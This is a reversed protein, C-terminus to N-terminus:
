KVISELDVIGVMLRGPGKPYFGLNVLCQRREVYKFDHTCDETLWQDYAFSLHQALLSLTDRAVISGDPHSLTYRVLGRYDPPYKDNGRQLTRVYTHPTRSHSEFETVDVGLPGAFLDNNRWFPIPDTCEIGYWTTGLLSELDKDPCHITFRIGNVHQPPVSLYHRRKMSEPLLTNAADGRTVFEGDLQVDYIALDCTVRGKESNGGDMALPCKVGSEVPEIVVSGSRPTWWDEDRAVLVALSAQPNLEDTIRFNDFGNLGRRDSANTETHALIGYDEGKPMAMLTRRSLSAGYGSPPLYVREVVIAGIQDVPGDKAAFITSRDKSDFWANLAGPENLVLDISRPSWHRSLNEEMKDAIELAKPATVRECATLVLGPLIYLM